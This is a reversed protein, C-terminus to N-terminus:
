EVKTVRLLGDGSAMSDKVLMKDVIIESSLESSDMQLGSEGPVISMPFMSNQAMTGNQMIPMTGNQLMTGNQMVGANSKIAALPMTGVSMMGPLLQPDIGHQSICHSQLQDIQIFRTGCQSCRFPKEGTHEREHRLMADFSHFPASCFQCLVLAMLVPTFSPNTPLSTHAPPLYNPMAGGTLGGGPMMGMPMTGVASQQLFQQFQFISGAVGNPVAGMGIDGNMPAMGGVQPMVLPLQGGPLNLSMVNESTQNFATPVGSMIVNNPHGGVMASNNNMGMQGAMNLSVVKPPRSPPPPVKARAAAEKRRECASDHENLSDRDVFRAGCHICQHPLEGSHGREHRALDSLSTLRQQCFTCQLKTELVHLQWHRMFIKPTEFLELCLDCQLAKRRCSGTPGTRHRRKHTRLSSLHSYQKGCEDCKVPANESLIGHSRRHLKLEQSQVFSKSCLECHFRKINNHRRLHDRLGGQHAFTRTCGEHTCVFPKEGTHVRRHATLQSQCYFRKPCFDCPFNRLNRSKHIWMHRNVDGRDRFSKGCETCSYPREGTHKRVHMTLAQKTRSKFDCMKCEFPRENNHIRMHVVLNNHQSFRKECLRCTYPREGTHVRLHIKLLSEHKFDKGCTHCVTQKPPAGNPPRGRKGTRLPVPEAIVAVATAMPIEPALPIPNRRSKERRTRLKPPKARQSLVTPPPITVQNKAAAMVAAARKAAQRQSSARKPPPPSPTTAFPPLDHTGPPRAPGALPQVQAIQVSM